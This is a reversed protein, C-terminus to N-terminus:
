MLNEMEYLSEEGEDALMVGHSQTSGPVAELELVYRRKSLQRECNSDQRM